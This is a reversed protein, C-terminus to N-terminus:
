QSFYRVLGEGMFYILKKRDETSMNFVIHKILLKFFTFHILM